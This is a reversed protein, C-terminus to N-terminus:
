TRRPWRACRSPGPPGCGPRYFEDAAARMADLRGHDGGRAAAWELFYAGTATM